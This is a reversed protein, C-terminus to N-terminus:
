TCNNFGAATNNQNFHKINELPTIMNFGVSRENGNRLANPVNERQFSRQFLEFSSLTSNALAAHNSNTTIPYNSVSAASVNSSSGSSILPNSAAAAM